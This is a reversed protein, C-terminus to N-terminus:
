LVGFPRERMGEPSEQCIRVELYEYRDRIDLRLATRHCGPAFRYRGSKKEFAIKGDEFWERHVIREATRSRFEKATPELLYARKLTYQSVRMRYNKGTLTDTVEIFAM